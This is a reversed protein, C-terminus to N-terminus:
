KSENSSSSIVGTGCCSATGDDLVNTVDGNVAVVAVATAIDGGDMTHEVDAAIAAADVLLQPPVFVLPKLYTGTNLESCASVIAVM